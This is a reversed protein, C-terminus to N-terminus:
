EVGGDIGNLYRRLNEERQAVYQAHASRALKEQAEEVSRRVAALSAQMQAETASRASQVQRQLGTVCAETLARVASLNEGIARMEFFLRGDAADVRGGTPLACEKLADMSGCVRNAYVDWLYRAYAGDPGELQDCAEREFYEHLQNVAILNRFSPRVANQAYLRQLGAGLRAEAARNEEIAREIAGRLSRQAAREVETARAHAALARRYWEMEEEYQRRAREAAAEELRRRAARDRLAAIADYAFGGACAGAVPCAILSLLSAVLLNWAGGWRWLMFLGLLIGFAGGLGASVCRDTADRQPAFRVVPARERPESPAKVGTIHFNLASELYAIAERCAHIANEADCAVRLYDVLEQRNMRVGM